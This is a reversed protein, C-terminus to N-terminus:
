MSDIRLVTNSFNSGVVGTVMLKRLAFKQEPCSRLSKASFSPKSRWGPSTSCHSFLREVRHIEARWVFEARMKETDFDWRCLILRDAHNFVEAIATQFTADRAIFFAHNKSVGDPGANGFDGTALKVVPELGCFHQGATPM